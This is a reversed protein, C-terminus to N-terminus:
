IHSTIIKLSGKFHMTGHGGWIVQKFYPKMFLLERM